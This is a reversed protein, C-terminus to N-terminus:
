IYSLWADKRRRKVNAFWRCLPYLALVVGIWVLYVVGLNYGYDEPPRGNQFAQSLAPGYKIFAFLVALGHIVFLHIVYYFLPVRGFIIFPQALRSPRLNVRELFALSAIAPGLTM